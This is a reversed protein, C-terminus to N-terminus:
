RASIVEPFTTSLRLRVGNCTAQLTREIKIKIRFIFEYFLKILKNIYVKRLFEDSQLALSIEMSELREFIPNNLM